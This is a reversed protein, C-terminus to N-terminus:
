SITLIEEPYLSNVLISPYQMYLKQLLIKTGNHRCLYQATEFDGKQRPSSAHLYAGPINVAELAKDKDRQTFNAFPIPGIVPKGPMDDDNLQRLEKFITAIAKEGHKKIGQTASM